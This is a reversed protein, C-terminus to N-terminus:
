NDLQSLTDYIPCLIANKLIAIETSKSTDTFFKEYIEFFSFKMQTLTKISEEYGPEILFTTLYALFVTSIAVSYWV